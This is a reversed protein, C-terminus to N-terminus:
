TKRAERPDISQCVSRIIDQTEKFIQRLEETDKSKQVGRRVLIIHLAQIMTEFNSFYWERYNAKVYKKQKKDYKDSGDWEYLCFSQDDADLYFDGTLKLVNRGREKEKM